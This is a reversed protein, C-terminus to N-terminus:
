KPCFSNLSRSRFSLDLRARRVINILQNNVPLTVFSQFFLKRSRKNRLLRLIQSRVSVFLLPCIYNNLSLIINHFLNTSAFNTLAQCTLATQIIIIILYKHRFGDWHRFKSHVFNGVGLLINFVFIGLLYEFVFLFRLLPVLEDFFHLHAIKWLILLDFQLSIDKM